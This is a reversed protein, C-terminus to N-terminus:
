YDIRCRAYIDTTLCLSEEWKSDGSSKLLFNLTIMGDESLGSGSFSSFLDCIKNLGPSANFSLYNDIDGTAAIRFLSGDKIYYTVYKYWTKDKDNEESVLVFGINNKSISSKIKDESVVIDANRIERKIFEVAYRGSLNLEDIVEGRSFANQSFILISSLPIMVISSIALVLILEILTFGNNKLCIHKLNSM